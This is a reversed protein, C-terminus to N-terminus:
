PVSPFDGTLTYRLDFIACMAWFPHSLLFLSKLYSDYGENNISKELERMENDDVNDTCYNGLRNVLNEFEEYENDDYPVKPYNKSIFDTLIKIVLDDHLIEDYEKSNEQDITKEFPLFWKNIHIVHISTICVSLNKCLNKFEKNPNSEENLLIKIINEINTSIIYGIEENCVTLDKGYQVFILQKNYEHCAVESM